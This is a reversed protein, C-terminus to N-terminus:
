GIAHPATRVVAGRWPIRRACGRQAEQLQSWGHLRHGALMLMAITALKKVNTGKWRLRNRFRLLM